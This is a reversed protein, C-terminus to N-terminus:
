EQDDFFTVRKEAMFGIAPTLVQSVLRPTVYGNLPVRWIQPQKRGYLRTPQGSPHRRPEIEKRPSLKM